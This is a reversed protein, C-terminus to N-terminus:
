ARVMRGLRIRNIRGLEARLVGRETVPDNALRRRLVALLEAGSRGDACVLYVQGFRQEYAQNGTSLGALVSAEATAVGAQERRSSAPTSREGIRPHGALARDIEAEDLTALVRDAQDCLAAVSHFPRARVLRQAWEPSACCVTLEAEADAPSLANFTALRM